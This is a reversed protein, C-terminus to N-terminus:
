YVQFDDAIAEYWDEVLRRRQEVTVQAPHPGLVYRGHGGGIDLSVAVHCSLHASLVEQLTRRRQRVDARAVDLLEEVHVDVRLQRLAPIALSPPSTLNVFRAVCVDYSVDLEELHPFVTSLAVPTCRAASTTTERHGEVVLTTLQSPLRAVDHHAHLRARRLAPHARCPVVNDAAHGLRLEQLCPLAALDLTFPLAVTVYLAWLRAAPQVLLAPRPPPLRVVLPARVVACACAVLAKGHVVAVVPM